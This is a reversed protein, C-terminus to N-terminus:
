HAGRGSAVAFATRALLYLDFCLSWNRIYYTDYRIQDALGGDGRAMVQWMGTVGPAVSCRLHRFAPPLMATHYEPFPRPGVLSLDGKLVNWLQPLEDISLRRLLTGVFPIVRPDCKLKVNQHWQRRLEPEAALIEKLYHEADRHMTRLKFIRVPKGNLGVRQQIFFMPGPSALKVLLGCIVTVPAALILALSSLILDIARKIVRSRRRLLQNSLEIGLTGGLNRVRIQEIPLLSDDRILVVHPFCNLLSALTASAKPSDWVLATTVGQKHLRPAVDIGGLVPVSHVRSVSGYDQPLLVGVVKYGLSFADGVSRITLEAQDRSGVVVALESWWRFSRAVSLVLYRFLPVTALAVVWAIAFAARSYRPGQRAVVSAATLTLFCISTYNFLRRLTEAAGLGFGPYLGGAMYSLPFVILLPAIQMYLGLRQHLEPRVWLLYAVVLSTAVATVDTLMLTAVRGLRPWMARSRPGYLVRPSAEPAQIGLAFAEEGPGLAQYRLM